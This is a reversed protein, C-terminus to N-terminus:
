PKIVSITVTFSEISASGANTFSAGFYKDASGSVARDPIATTFIPGVEMVNTATGGSEGSPTTTSALPTATIAAGAYLDSPGWSIWISSGPGLAAVTFSETWCTVTAM